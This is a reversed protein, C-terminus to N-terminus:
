IIIQKEYYYGRGNRSGDIGFPRYCVQYGEKKTIKLINHRAPPNVAERKNCARIFHSEYKNGEFDERIDM